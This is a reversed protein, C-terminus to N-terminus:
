KQGGLRAMAYADIYEGDRFAFKRFTGEVEFGARKYLKIAPMNDTFVILELRVLNLWLDALNIAAGMLASGIGQGQWQDHIAMGLEGVHRRRPSHTVTSLGLSGVAQSDVCAVLWYAGDRREGLRKKWREASPFPLQLTGWIAKPQAHIDKLALYDEPECSRIDIQQQKM